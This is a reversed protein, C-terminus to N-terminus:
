ISHKEVNLDLDNGPPFELEKGLNINDPGFKLENSLSERENLAFGLAEQAMRLNNFAPRTRKEIKDRTATLVDIKKNLISLKAILEFRTLTM